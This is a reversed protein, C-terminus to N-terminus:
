LYTKIFSHPLTMLAKAILRNAQEREGTRQLVRAVDKAIWNNSGDVEPFPDFLAPYANKWLDRVNGPQDNALAIDTLHSLFNGPEISESVKRSLENLGELAYKERETVDGTLLFKWSQFYAILLPERQKELLIEIWGVAKEFDGLSVYAGVIQSWYEMSESDLEYANRFQVIADDYRGFGISYLRGLNRKFNLKVPNMAVLSKRLELADEFQGSMELIRAMRNSSGESSPDLEAAKKYMTISKQPDSGELLFGYARYAEINNSNFNIAKEFAIVAGEQDGRYRKLVGLATYGESLEGDLELAKNIFIEAEAFAQERPNGVVVGYRLTVTGLAAYALAFDPDHRIAEKFHVIAERKESSAEKMLPKGKFYAELAALNATPLKEIREKEEPSIVAKLSDAILAVIENQIAFINQTTMERTYIEAWLHGETVPDILQVNIRIQDGGRQVGGELLWNVGLEEGITSMKKTTGRYSMVSTRAITKIDKIRSLHTLLDDHIGDTFFEDDKLESRNAFPLVAISKEGDAVVADGGSRIYFFLAMAGFILTPILAGVGYALWSRKKAHSADKHSEPHDERATKTTKVGEPTLEFAWAIILSVPFGLLVCMIVLSLAWAPINLSPFTSVAIQIVLWAVIAYVMAVRVVHRRKLEQWFKGLGSAEPPGDQSGKDPSSPNDQAMASHSSTPLVNM